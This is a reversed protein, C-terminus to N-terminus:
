TSPDQSPKANYNNLYSIPMRCLPLLHSTQIISLVCEGKMHGPSSQLTPWIVNEPQPHALSDATAFPTHYVTTATSISGWVTKTM